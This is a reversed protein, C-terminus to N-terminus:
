KTEVGIQAAQSFDQVSVGVFGGVIALILIVTQPSVLGQLWKQRTMQVEHQQNLQATLLEKLEEHQVKQCTENEKASIAMHQLTVNVKAMEVAVSNVENQITGVWKELRDVRRHTEEGM